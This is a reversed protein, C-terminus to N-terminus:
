TTEVVSCHKPGENSKLLSSIVSLSAADAWQVDDFLVTVRGNQYSILIELLKCLMFKISNAINTRDDICVQVQTCSPMIRVLSPLVEYLLAARNGLANDLDHSINLFESPSAASAFLDILDTFIEGFKSLPHSVDRNLDFKTAFAHGGGKRTIELIHAAIRSKGVGGAGM